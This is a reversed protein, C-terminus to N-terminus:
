ASLFLPREDLHPPITKLVETKKMGCPSLKVPNPRCSLSILALPLSVSLLFKQLSERSSERQLSLSEFFAFSLKAKVMREIRLQFILTLIQLANYNFQTFHCTIMNKHQPTLKRFTHSRNNSGVFQLSRWTKNFSVRIQLM